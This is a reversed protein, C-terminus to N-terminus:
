DCGHGCAILYAGVAVLLGLADAAAGGVGLKSGLRLGLYVALRKRTTPESGTQYTTEPVIFTQATIGVRDGFMVSADATVRGIEQSGTLVLGPAFDLAATPSLWYRIRPKATLHAGGLVVAGVSAAVAVRPSLNRLGGLEVSPLLWGGPRYGTQPNVSSLRVGYGAETIWFSRCQSLPRGRFCSRGATSDPAQAASTGALTAALVAAALLRRIM